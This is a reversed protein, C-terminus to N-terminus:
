PLDITAYTIAQDEVRLSESANAGTMPVATVVVTGTQAGAIWATGATSTKLETWASPTPGDYKTPFQAGPSASATANAVPLGNKVIRAVISGQSAQLVISNANMLDTYVQVDITPVLLSPGYAMVSKVVNAGTARWVLNTGSPTAITFNGNATTMATKTGLTVTINGAGSAACNDLFRLDTILCVRGAITNGGDGGGGDGGTAADLQGVPGGTGGPPEVPFDDGMGQKCASLGVIVVLRWM